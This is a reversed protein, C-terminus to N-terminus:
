SLLDLVIGDILLRGKESTAVRNGPLLVLLGRALADSVKEKPIELQRLLELDTGSACRLELMLREERHTRDDIHEIGQAPSGSSLAQQYALPHKRNWFRNGDIHSHAGPGYGWWNRSYWYAQNHISPEGWNSVEYWQLGAESLMESVLEYKHANLDEDVDAFTGRAIQAALKTGPEVILSYASIHETELALASEVTSKWSELSEGPAGFILDVSVRLGAQKAWSVVEAVREPDHTRDLTKLVQPDFSQVGFSIRNVGRVALENLYELSVTDPNAEITIEAGPAIGHMCSLSDLIEGLQDSSFLSPTGGGFFVSQLAPTSIRSGELVSSSLEIEAILSKHFDTQRVEGIESATYTNFDCYGCRVKCFPIHVYAHFSGGERLSVLRDDKPWPLGLPLEAAM